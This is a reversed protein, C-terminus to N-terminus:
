CNGSWDGFKNLDVHLVHTKAPQLTEIQGDRLKLKIPESCQSCRSTILIDQEFTFTSGMADIACMAYFSRDDALQVRHPTPLASVPYAFQVQKQENVVLVQKDVMRSFLTGFDKGYIDPLTALDNIAVPGGASIIRNMLALRLAHEESDLRSTIKEITLSDTQLNM